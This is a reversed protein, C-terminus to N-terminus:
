AAVTTSELQETSHAATEAEEHSSRSRLAPTRRTLAAHLLVSGTAAAAIGALTALATLTAADPQHLPQARLAQWTLLWTVGGYAFGAIWVLAVQHPTGFRTRRIAWAVLPLAQLAHIGVFHPVRLDGGQTSWGVVPLGPGGMSTGVSHSGVAVIEHSTGANFRTTDPRATMLSGLAMGALSLAIGLRLGWALTPDPLRQVLLLVAALLTALWIVVIALGMASFLYGDFATTHNFHSMTGRVVQTVIIAMEVVFGVMIVFSLGGVLWGRLRGTVFTLMWVLTFAYVAISISFKLPKLWAPAGTIVRADLVLGAVCVAILGLMGTGLLTLWRNARLSARLVAAPPPYPARLTTSHTTQLM